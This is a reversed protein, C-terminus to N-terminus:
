RFVAFNRKGKKRSKVLIGHLPGRDPIFPSEYPLSAKRVERVNLIFAEGSDKVMWTQM